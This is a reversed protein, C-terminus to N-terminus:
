QDSLNQPSRKPPNNSFRKRPSLWDGFVWGFVALLPVGVFLSFWPHLFILPVKGSRAWSRPVEIGLGLIRSAAVPLVMTIFVITSAISLLGIGLLKM